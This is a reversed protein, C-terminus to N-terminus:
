LVSRIGTVTWFTSVTYRIGDTVTNVGHIFNIDGPFIILMNRVPKATFSQIPFFIEGGKFDNNLYFVSSLDYTPCCNKSGDLEQKDAHPAQEDGVQWRNLQAGTSDALIDFTTQLINKTKIYLNEYINKAIPETFDRHVRDSWQHHGYVASWDDNCKAYRLLEALEDTPLLNEFIHINDVSDGWYGSPTLEIRTSYNM